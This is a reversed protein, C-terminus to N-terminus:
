GNIFTAVAKLFYLAEQTCTKLIYEPRINAFTSVAESMATPNSVIESYKKESCISELSQVCKNYTKELSDPTVVGTTPDSEDLLRCVIPFLGKDKSVM